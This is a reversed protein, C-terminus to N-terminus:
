TTRIKSSKLNKKIRCASTLYKWNLIRLGTAGKGGRPTSPYLPALRRLNAKQPISSEPWFFDNDQGSKHNTFTLIRSVWASLVFESPHHPWITLPIYNENKLTPKWRKDCLSQHSNENFIGDAKYDIWIKTEPWKGVVDKGGVDTSIQLFWTKEEKWWSDKRWLEDSTKSISFKKRAPEWADNPM